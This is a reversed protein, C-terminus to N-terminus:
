DELLKLLEPDLEIGPEAPAETSVGEGPQVGADAQEEFTVRGTDAEPTIGFKQQFDDYEQRYGTWGTGMIATAVDDRSAGEMEPLVDLRDEFQQAQGVVKESFNRLIVQPNASNSDLAVLANQIDNDSLGRNSPERSRAEMYALQIINSRYAQAKASARDMGEPLPIFRNWKDSTRAQKVLDRSYRQQGGRGQYKAEVGDMFIVDMGTVRAINEVHRTWQDVFTTVAQTPQGLWVVGGDNELSDTINTMVKNYMRLAQRSGNVGDRYSRQETPTMVKRLRQGLPKSADDTGPKGALTYKEHVTGDPEIAHGTLPDIMAAITEGGVKINKTEGAAARAETGEKAETEAGLKALQAKQQQLQQLQGAIRQKIEPDAAKNMAMTLTEIQADLPDTATPTFGAIDEKLKQRQEFQEPTIGLQNAIIQNEAREVAKPALEGVGRAIGKFIGTGERHGQVAGQVAGGLLGGVAM